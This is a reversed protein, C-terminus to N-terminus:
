VSGRSSDIQSKPRFGSLQNLPNDVERLLLHGGFGGFQPCVTIEAEFKEM